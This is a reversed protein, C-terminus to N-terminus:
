VIRFLHLYPVGGVRKLDEKAAIGKEIFIGVSRTGVINATYFENIAHTSGAEEETVLDGKYFEAYRSLNLETKGEAYAKGLLESDCMAIIEGEPTIHVKLYIM